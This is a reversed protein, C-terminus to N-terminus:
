VESVSRLDPLTVTTPVAVSELPKELVDDWLMLTMAYSGGYIAGLSPYLLTMQSLHVSSPVALSM